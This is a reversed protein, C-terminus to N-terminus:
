QGIKLFDGLKLGAAVRDFILPASIGMYAAVIASQAGLVVAIPGAGLFAFGIRVIPYSRTRYRKPLVGDNDGLDRLLAFMETALSFFVAILYIAVILPAHILDSLDHAPDNM